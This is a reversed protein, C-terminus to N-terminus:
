GDAERVVINMEDGIGAIFRQAIEMRGSRPNPQAWSTRVKKKYCSEWLGWRM